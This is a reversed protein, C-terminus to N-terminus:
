LATGTAALGVSIPSRRTTSSLWPVATMNAVPRSNLTRPRFRMSVADFRSQISDPRQGRLFRQGISRRDGVVVTQVQAALPEQVADSLLLVSHSLFIQSLFIFWDIGPLASNM